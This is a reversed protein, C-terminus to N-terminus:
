EKSYLGKLLEFGRTVLTNELIMPLGHYDVFIRYFYDDANGNTIWEHVETDTLNNKIANLIYEDVNM